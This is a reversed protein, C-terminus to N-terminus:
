IKCLMKRNGPGSSKCGVWCVSKVLLLFVTKLAVGCTTSALKEQQNNNPHETIFSEVMIIEVVHINISEM